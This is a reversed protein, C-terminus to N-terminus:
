ATARRKRQWTLFLAGVGGILCIVGLIWLVLGGMIMFIIAAVILGLGIINPAM